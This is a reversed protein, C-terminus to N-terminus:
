GCSIDLKYDTIYKKSTEKDKLLESFNYSCTLQKIIEALLNMIEHICDSTEVHHVTKRNLTIKWIEATESM